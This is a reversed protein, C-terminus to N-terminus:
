NSCLSGAPGEPGDQVVEDCSERLENRLPLGVSSGSRYDRAQPLQATAQSGALHVSQRQQRLLWAADSIARLRARLRRTSSAFILRHSPKLACVNPILKSSVAVVVPVSGLLDLVVIRAHGLRGTGVGGVEGAPEASKSNCDCDHCTCQPKTLSRRASLSRGVAPETTRGDRRGERESEGACDRSSTRRTSPPADVAVRGINSM